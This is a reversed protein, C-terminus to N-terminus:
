NEQVWFHIYRIRSEIIDDMFDIMQDLFEQKNM